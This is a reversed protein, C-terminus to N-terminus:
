AQDFDEASAAGARPVVKRIIEAAFGRSQLFRMQRARERADAPANGFKRQWIVQAREAESAKLNGLLDAALEGAIGRARLDQAVRSSGYRAGRVRVVGEAFRRESLLNEAQLADLVTEIDAAEGGQRALKQRLEARSHDRRALLGIARLRLKAADPVPLDERAASGAMGAPRRRPM